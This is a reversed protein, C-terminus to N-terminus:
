SVFSLDLTSISPHTQFQLLSMAWESNLLCLNVLLPYFNTFILLWSNEGPLKMTRQSPPPCSMQGSCLYHTYSQTFSVFSISGFGHHPLALQYFAPLPLCLALTNPVICQCIKCTCIKSYKELDKTTNKKSLICYLLLIIM